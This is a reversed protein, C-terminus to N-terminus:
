IDFIHNESCECGFFLIGDCFLICKGEVVNMVLVFGNIYMVM